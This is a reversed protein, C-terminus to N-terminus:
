SSPKLMIPLWDTSFMAIGTAAATRSTQADSVGSATADEYVLEPANLHKAVNVAIAMLAVIYRREGVHRGEARERRPFLARLIVAIQQCEFLLHFQPELPRAERLHDGVLEGNGLLLGVRVGGIKKFRIRRQEFGQHAFPLHQQRM